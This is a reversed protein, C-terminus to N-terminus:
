NLSTVKTIQNKIGDGIQTGFKTQSIALIALVVVVLIGLYEVAGQGADRRAAVREHARDALVLLTTYLAVIPAM